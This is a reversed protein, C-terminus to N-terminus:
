EREKRLIPARLRRWRSFYNTLLEYYSTTQEITEYESEVRQSLACTVVEQDGLAVFFSDIAEFLNVTERKTRAHLRETESGYCLLVSYVITSLPSTAPQQHNTHQHKTTNPNHTPYVYRQLIFMCATNRYYSIEYYYSLLM